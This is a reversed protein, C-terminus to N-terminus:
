KVPQGYHINTFIQKQKNKGMVTSFTLFWFLDETSIVKNCNEMFLDKSHFLSIMHCLKGSFRKINACFFWHIDNMITTARFLADQLHDERFINKNSLLSFANLNQEKGLCCFYYLIQTSINPSVFLSM